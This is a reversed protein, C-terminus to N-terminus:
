KINELIKRKELFNKQTHSDIFKSITNTPRKFRMKNKAGMFLATFTNSCRVKHSCKQTFM